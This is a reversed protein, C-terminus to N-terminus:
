FIRRRSSAKSVDDLVVGEELTVQPQGCITSLQEQLHDLIKHSCMISLHSHATELMIAKDAHEDPYCLDPEVIFDLRATFYYYPRNSAVVRERLAQLFESGLQMEKVSEAMNALPQIALRSGKFPSCIAIVGKVDIDNEAALYEAFYSAVIGGRSHGMLIVKKHGNQKIKNKLQKAFEKISLGKMRDEFGVLHMGSVSPPLKNKSIMREAIRKFSNSRDATGHVCYIEVGEYERPNYTPNALNIDDGNTFVWGAVYRPFDTVSVPNNHKLFKKASEM